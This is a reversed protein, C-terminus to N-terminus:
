LAVERDVIGVERVDPLLGVAVARLLVRRAHGTGMRSQHHEGAVVARGEGVRLDAGGVAAVALAERVEAEGHFAGGPAPVSTTGGEHLTLALSCEGPSGHTRIVGTSGAAGEGLEPLLARRRLHYSPM